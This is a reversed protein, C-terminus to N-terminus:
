STGNPEADAEPPILLPDVKNTACAAVLLLAAILVTARV